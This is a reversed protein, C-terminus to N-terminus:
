EFYFAKIAILHPRSVAMDGSSLRRAMRKWIAAQEELTGDLSRYTLPYIM